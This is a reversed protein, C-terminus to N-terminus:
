GGGGENIINLLHSIFFKYTVHAHCWESLYNQIIQNDVNKFDVYIPFEFRNITTNVFCLSIRNRVRCFGFQIYM